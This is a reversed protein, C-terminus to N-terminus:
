SLNGIDAFYQWYYPKSKYFIDMDVGSGAYDTLDAWAVHVTGSDDVALSVLRSDETCGTSVV